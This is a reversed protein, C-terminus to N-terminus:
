KRWLYREYDAVLYKSGKHIVKHGEAGLAAKQEKIGGPYKPNIEGGTKLTRWYPTIKKKGGAADEAAANAAIWSFIGCTLPCGIDAQHKSAVKKRIDDITILKGKPVKAMIENVEMPSPIAMRTGQWHKRAKENLTVIKPLDKNDRLKERWTKKQAM